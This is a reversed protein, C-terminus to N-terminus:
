KILIMKQVSQYSGAQLRYFYVGSAAANGLATKGDWTVTYAGAAQPRDVLRVIERGDVTLVSLAVHADGPIDYRIRTEPNFPNPYNAYLRFTRIGTNGEPVATPTEFIEVWKAKARDANAKIESRSGGGLVAFGVRLTDGAPIDFPGRGVVHSYDAKESGSVNQLGGSLHEWKEMDLYGDYVEEENNILKYIMSGGGSSVAAVGGHVETIPDYIYGLKRIPDYAGMNEGANLVDWDMFFGLRLDEIASDQSSAIRLSILVFKGNEEDDFALSTQHIWLGSSSFTRGDTFIAEGQQDALTGPIEVDIEGGEVPRFDNNQREEDVGRAVDSIHDEDTAAMLAGEFLLNDFPRYIFGEGMINDPYDMFGLRGLSTLTLIVSEGEINAFLPSVYFDLYDRDTYDGDATISVFVDVHQNRVADADIRLRVANGTNRYIEGTGLSPITIRANEIVLDQSSTSFTLEVNSAPRLYNCVEFELLIDEGPDFYGDMDAGTDETMITSVLRIAPSEVTVARYANLRGYGLKGTYAPNLNDIPTASIRVQQGLQFGSYEPFRTKVLAAVSATMPSSFSTGDVNAFSGAMSTTTISNGPAAIDVTYHYNSFSSRSDTQSTAAVCLVNRFSAPYHRIDQNENGASAVVLVDNGAAYDIVEQEAYSYGPGSFSLNIIDAGMDVAYVLAELWGYVGYSGEIEVVPLKVPLIRANFAPSAIGVGNDTVAGATGAVLTGHGSEEPTPDNDEDGFDWGHVDDVFGNQDDDAGNDPVEGPNTYINAELDPHEWHVGTDIIGIMVEGQTKATDWSERSQITTLHWQAGFSPDNPTYDLMRIYMPEAWIVSPDRSLIDIARYVDQGQKLRVRVLNDLRGSGPRSRNILRRVEDAGATALREQWRAQAKAPQGTVARKLVVVGPVIRANAFRSRSPDAPIGTRSTRAFAVDAAVAYFMFVAAAIAAYISFNWRNRKM